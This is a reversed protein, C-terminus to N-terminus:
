SAKETPHRIHSAMPTSRGLNVASSPLGGAGGKPVTQGWITRWREEDEQDEIRGREREAEWEEVPRGLFGRARQSAHIADLTELLGGGRSEAEPSPIPEITVRVPGPPVAVSAELDLSGDPRITGPVTIRATNM